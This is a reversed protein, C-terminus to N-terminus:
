GAIRSADHVWPIEVTPTTATGTEEGAPTLVELKDHNEPDYSVKVQQGAQPLQSMKVKAVGSAEFSTGERPYVVYSVRVTATGYSNRETMTVQAITAEAETRNRRFLVGGAYHDVAV